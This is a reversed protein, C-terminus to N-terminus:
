RYIKDDLYDSWSEMFKHIFTYKDDHDIEGNYDAIKGLIDYLTNYQALTVSYMLDVLAKKGIKNLRIFREYYFKILTRHFLHMYLPLM